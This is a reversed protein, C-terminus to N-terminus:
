SAARQEHDTAPGTVPETDVDPHITDAWSAAQETAPIALQRPVGAAHVLRDARRRVEGGFDTIRATLDRQNRDGVAPATPANNVPQLAWWAADQTLSAFRPRLGALGQRQTVTTGTVLQRVIAGGDGTLNHTDPDFLEIGHLNGTVLEDIESVTLGSADIVPLDHQPRQWIHEATIEVRGTDHVLVKVWGRPGPGDSFGRRLSSGTYWVQGTTGHDFGQVPGLTHYHSLIMAEWGRTAWEYPIAREEGHPDICHYLRDDAAFTGHSFFLNVHGHLPQPDVTIGHAELGKALGYHSVLHLALGAPIAPNSAQTHIEYLGPHPGIGDGPGRKPDPYVANIGLAPRHMVGMASLDRGGGACHNGSNGVAWIGADVRLDDVRNAVEIDVTAPHAWHTLDGGDIIGDVGADLMAKMTLEHAIHGDVIRQNWTTDPNLRMGAPKYGLHQCGRVGLVYGASM